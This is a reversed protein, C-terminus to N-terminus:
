PFNPTPNEVTPTKGDDDEDDADDSDMNFRKFQHMFDDKHMPDSSLFESPHYRMNMDGSLLRSFQANRQNINVDHGIHPFM